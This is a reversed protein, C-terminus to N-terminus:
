ERELKIIMKYKGEPLKLNLIVDNLTRRDYLEISKEKIDAKLEVRAKSM